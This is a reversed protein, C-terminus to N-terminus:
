YFNYYNGYYRMLIEAAKHTEVHGDGFLLNISKLRGNLPHGEGADTPLASNQNASRDTLIPQVSVQKDTLRTPWNNLNGPSVPYITPLYNFPASRKQQLAM